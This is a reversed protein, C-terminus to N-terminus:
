ALFETGKTRTDRFIHGRHRTFLQAPPRLSSSRERWCWRPRLVAIAAHRAETDACRKVPLSGSGRAWGVSAPSPSNGRGKNAAPREPGPSEVWVEGCVFCDGSVSRSWSILAESWARWAHPTQNAMEVLPRHWSSFNHALILMQISSFQAEEKKKQRHNKMICTLEFLYNLMTKVTNKIKWIFYNISSLIDLIWKGIIYVNWLFRPKKFICKVISSALYFANFCACQFLAKFVLAVSYFHFYKHM